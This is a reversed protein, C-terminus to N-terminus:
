IMGRARLMKEYDSTSAFLPSGQANNMGSFMAGISGQMPNGIMQQSNQTSPAPAAVQGLLQSLSTPSSQQQPSVSQAQTAGSQPAASIVGQSQLNQILKSM